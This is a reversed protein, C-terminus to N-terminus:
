KILQSGRNSHLQFVFLDLLYFRFQNLFYFDGWIPANLLILEIKIYYKYQMCVMADSFKLKYM